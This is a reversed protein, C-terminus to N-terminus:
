VSVRKVSTLALKHAEGHYDSLSSDWPVPGVCGDQVKEVMRSASGSSGGRPHRAWTTEHGDSDIRAYASLKLAAADKGGM